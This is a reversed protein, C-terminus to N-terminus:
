DTSLVEPPADRITKWNVPPQEPEPLNKWPVVDIQASSWDGAKATFRVFGIGSM